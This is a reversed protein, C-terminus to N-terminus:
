RLMTVGYRLSLVVRAAEALVGFARGQEREVDVLDRLAEDSMRRLEDYTPMDDREVAPCHECGNGQADPGGCVACRPPAIPAPVAHPEHPENEMHGNQVWEPYM